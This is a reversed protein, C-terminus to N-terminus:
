AFCGIIICIKILYHHKELTLKLWVSANFLKNKFSWKTDFLVTQIIESIAGVSSSIPLRRFRTCSRRDITRYSCSSKFETKDMSFLLFWVISSKEDLIILLFLVILLSRDCSFVTLCFKPFYWKISQRTISIKQTLLKTRIMIDEQHNVKQHYEKQIRACTHIFQENKMNVTM